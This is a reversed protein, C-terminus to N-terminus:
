GIKPLDQTATKDIESNFMALARQMMEAARQATILEVMSSVPNVNSSELAGQQVSSDTDAKASNAPASYYTNGASTLTTDQSFKVLKLKGTVAGNTSITGDPSIAVTGPLMQLAGKDGM